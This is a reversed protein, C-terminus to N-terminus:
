RESVAAYICDVNAMMTGEDGDVEASASWIMMTEECKGVADFRCRAIVSGISLMM